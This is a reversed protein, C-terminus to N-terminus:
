RQRLTPPRKEYISKRTQLPNYSITHEALPIEFRVREVYHDRLIAAPILGPFVALWQMEEILQEGTKRAFAVVASNLGALDITRRNGFYRLAGADLVGVSADVPVNTRIWHAAKVDLLYIVRADTSLQDRRDLFSRALAPACAILGTLGIGTVVWALKCAWASARKRRRKALLVDAEPGLTLLTGYGIAFAATLVLSAPDIWRTWYYGLLQVTRTGMVGLLYALPAVVMMLFAAPEADKRSRRGIILALFVLGGILFLPVSAYGHQTVGRWGEAALASSVQFARGKVYFTNPLPHGTVSLCFLCWLAAPLVSIAGLRLRWGLTATKPAIVLVLLLGLPILLVAEPRTVPALAVMTFAPVWRKMMFWYAAFVWLALLLANEMGSLASFVFRPAAAMLCAAVIGAKRSRTLTEGVRLVGLVTLLGLLVGIGKVALVAKETGLPELWHAPASVIAWLPSTCGAEQEGANYELGRGYAFSRAYVRHIWGDDLPFGYASFDSHVLFAAVTGLFIAFPIIMGWSFASAKVATASGEGHTKEPSSPASRPAGKRPSRRKPAPMGASTRSVGVIHGAVRARGEPRYLVSTFWASDRSPGKNCPITTTLDTAFLTAAYLPSAFPWERPLAEACSLDAAM